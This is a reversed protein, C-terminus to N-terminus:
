LVPRGLGDTGLVATSLFAQESPPSLFQSLVVENANDGIFFGAFAMLLWMIVISYSLYKLM